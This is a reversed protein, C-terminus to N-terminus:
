SREDQFFQAGLQEAILNCIAKPVGTILLQGDELAINGVEEGDEVYYAKGEGSFVVEENTFPNTQKRDPIPQLFDRSEIMECWEDLQIRQESRSIRGFQMDPLGSFEAENAEIYANLKKMVGDMAAFYLADPSTDDTLLERLIEDTLSERLNSKSQWIELRRDIDAPPTSNPFVAFAKDFALSAEAAGITKYAQRTLLFEPDGHFDGEFLYQFGGNGLIGHAHYVLMVTQEPKPIKSPDVDRGHKRLIRSFTSGAVDASVISSEKVGSPSSDPMESSCGVSALLLAAVIVPRRLM